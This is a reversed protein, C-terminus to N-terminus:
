KHLVKSHYNGLSYRRAVPISVEGTGDVGGVVM